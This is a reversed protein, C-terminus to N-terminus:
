REPSFGDEEPTEEKEDAKNEADKGAHEADPVKEVPVRRIQLFHRPLACVANLLIEREGVGGAFFNNRFAPPVEPFDMLLKLCGVLAEIFNKM